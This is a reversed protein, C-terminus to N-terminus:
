VQTESLIHTNKMESGGIFKIGILKGKTEVRDRELM